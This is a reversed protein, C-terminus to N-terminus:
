TLLLRPVSPLIARVLPIGFYICIISHLFLHSAIRKVFVTRWSILSPFFTDIANSTYYPRKVDSAMPVVSRDKMRAALIHLRGSPLPTTRAYCFLEGCDRSKRQMSDIDQKPWRGTVNPMLLVTFLPSHFLESFHRFYGHKTWLILTM